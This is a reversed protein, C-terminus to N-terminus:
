TGGSRPQEELRVQEILLELFRKRQERYLPDHPGSLAAAHMMAHAAHALRLGPSGSLAADLYRGSACGGEAHHRWFAPGSPLALFQEEWLLASALAGLATAPRAADWEWRFGALWGPLDGPPMPRALAYGQGMDAGLWLAAEILGP